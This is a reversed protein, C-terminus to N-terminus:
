LLGLMATISKCDAKRAYRQKSEKHSNPIQRQELTMGMNDELQEGMAAARTVKGQRGPVTQWLRLRGSQGLHRGMKHLAASAVAASARRLYSAALSAASSASFARRAASPRM